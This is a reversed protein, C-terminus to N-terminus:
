DVFDCNGVGSWLLFFIALSMEVFHWFALGIQLLQMMEQAILDDDDFL